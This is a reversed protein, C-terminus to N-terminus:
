RVGIKGLLDGYGTNFVDIGTGLTATLENSLNDETQWSGNKKILVLGDPLTSNSYVDERLILEAKYKESSIRSINYFIIQKNIVAKAEFLIKM